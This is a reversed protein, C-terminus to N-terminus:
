FPQKKKLEERANDYGVLGANNPRKEGALLFLGSWGNAISHKVMELLKRGDAGSIKLWGSAAIDFSKQTKYRFRKEAFKYELWMDIAEKAADPSTWGTPDFVPAGPGPSTFTQSKQNTPQLNKNEFHAFASNINPTINVTNNDRCKQPYPIPMKASLTDANKRIAVELYIRRENGNERDIQTRIYGADVLAKVWRSITDVSCSYLRAFYANSAWCYGQANTLATIEGYLLKAGDAIDANYRVDAPIIAYYSPKNEMNKSMFFRRYRHAAKTHRHAAILV